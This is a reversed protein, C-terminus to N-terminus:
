RSLLGVRRCSFLDREGGRDRGGHCGEGRGNLLMEDKSGKTERPQPRFTVSVRCPGYYRPDSGPLLVSLGPCLTLSPGPTSDTSVYLLCVDRRSVETVRAFDFLPSPSPGSPSVTSELTLITSSHGGGEQGETM